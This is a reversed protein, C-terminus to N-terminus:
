NLIEFSQFFKDGVATQDAGAFYFIVAYLRKGKVVLLVKGKLVEGSVTTSGQFTLTVCPLKDPGFTGDARGILMAGILQEADREGANFLLRVNTSDTDYVKVAATFAAGGETVAGSSTYSRWTMTGGKTEFNELKYDKTADSPDRGPFDARFKYASDEVLKALAARQALLIAMPLVPWRNM